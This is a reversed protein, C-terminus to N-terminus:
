HGFLDSLLLDRILNVTDPDADLNATNLIFDLVNERRRNRNDSHNEDTHRPEPEHNEDTHTDHNEDTHRPEHSEEPELEQEHSEEPESDHSEHSEEPESDHSEHSEEPESDHSEHSEEPESDHSEHSSESDEEEDTTDDHHREHRPEGRSEYEYDTSYLGYVRLGLQNVVFGLPLNNCIFNDDWKKACLPCIRNRRMRMLWDEVCFKCFYQKCLPCRIYTDKTLKEQCINCDPVEKKKKVQKKVTGTPQKTEDSSAAAKETSKNNIKSIESNNSIIPEEVLNTSM